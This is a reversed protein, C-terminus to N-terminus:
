RCLVNNAKKTQIKREDSFLTKKETKKLGELSLIGFNGVVLGNRSGIIHIQSNKFLIKLFQSVVLTMSNRM